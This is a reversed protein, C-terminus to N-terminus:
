LCKIFICLKSFIDIGVLDWTGIRYGDSVKTAYQQSAITNSAVGPPPAPAAAFDAQLQANAARLERILRETPADNVVPRTRISKMRDAFRLTSLTEEHCLDAPSITALQM